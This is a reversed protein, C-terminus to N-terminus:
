EADKVKFVTDPTWQLHVQWSYFFAKSIFINYRYKAAIQELNLSFMEFRGCQLESHIIVCQFISIPIVFFEHGWTTTYRHGSLVAM